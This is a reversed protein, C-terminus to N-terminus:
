FIWCGQWSIIKGHVFKSVYVRGDWTLRVITRKSSIKKGIEFLSKNVKSLIIANALVGIAGTSSESRYRQVLLFRVIVVLIIM